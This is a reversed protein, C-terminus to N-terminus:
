EAIHTFVFVFNSSHCDSVPRGFLKDRWIRSRNIFTAYLSMKLHSRRALELAQFPSFWAIHELNEIVTGNTMAKRTIRIYHPNPTAVLIRGGENLHRGCFSLLAVPDNVHEIVDGAIILDFREGLDTDSTADVCRIDFGQALVAKCEAELIDVGVARKALTQLRRFKWEPRQTNALDHGIAGIDLIAQDPAQAFIWDWDNGREVIHRMALLDDRTNQMAGSDCPKDSYGYRMTRMDGIRNTEVNPIRIQSSDCHGM